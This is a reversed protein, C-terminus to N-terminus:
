GEKVVADLYPIIWTLSKIRPPSTKMHQSVTLAILEERLRQQKDPNRALKYLTMDIVAAPSEHVVVSFTQPLTTKLLLSALSSFLFPKCSHVYRRM